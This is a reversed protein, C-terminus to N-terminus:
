VSIRNIRILLETETQFAGSVSYQTEVEEIICGKYLKRIYPDNNYSLLFKGKIQKLAEALEEHQNFADADEREYIHEKTYYPPDLYFFTHPQDFRAVIKEWPQKEIIVHRLRESADKVKDLNRLPMYKYGQNVCFNKSRSGYSCSLQFYFRIARELETKPEHQTFTDFMERSELYQNLETVFAEPHQKVYKWFNVLDGNIDYGKYLKLVEPNDDYSLIFRGKINRLIDRLAEHSFQKSNEYTYGLM